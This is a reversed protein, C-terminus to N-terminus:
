GSVGVWKCKRKQDQMEDMMRRRRQYKDHHHGSWLLYNYWRAPYPGHNIQRYYWNNPFRMDLYPKSFYGEKQYKKFVGNHKLKKRMAEWKDRFAKHKALTKIRWNRWHPNATPGLMRLKQLELDLNNYYGM